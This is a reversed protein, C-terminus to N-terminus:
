SGEQLFRLVLDKVEVSTGQRLPYNVIFDRTRQQRLQKVRKAYESFLERGAPMHSGWADQNVGHQAVFERLRILGQGALWRQNREDDYPEERETVPQRGDYADADAPTDTPIPHFPRDDAPAADTHREEAQTSTNDTSTRPNGPIDGRLARNRQLIRRLLQALRNYQETTPSSVAESGDATGGAVGDNNSQGEGRTHWPALNMFFNGLGRSEADEARNQEVRVQHDESTGLPEEEDDSIADFANLRVHATATTYSLVSDPPPLPDSSSSIMTTFSRPLLNILGPISSVMVHRAEDLTIDADLSTYSPPAVASEAVEVLLSIAEPTNWVDKANHVYMECELKERQTAPQKGWISPPVHELNLEQFLRSFIYPYAEISRRLASRAGQADKVKSKAIGLSIDLNPRTSIWDLVPSEYIKILHDAQGGRIALQDINMCVCYPDGEPDLSLVLKAWEYGTRWTGRQGLNGMYRWAALWFERNEPRRFDLRAKGESLAQVFSTHTARGFSFIARELLDGSVSHDGQQKAIESVQLLTSVHYPNFQLLQIMRQPDMSEVCTEFQRQVDQYLTNHIFRFETTGDSLKEVLEMGLGGTTALPWAAKGPVGFVNRRLATSGLGRGHSAPSNRGALAGGLDLHRPGRGRRTEPGPEDDDGEFAVNGFLKKMENAANLAKPDTALLRCVELVSGNTEQMQTSPSDTKIAASLSKLAVDIEDLESDQEGIAGTKGPGVDSENGVTKKKNKKKKKKNSKPKGKTISATPQDEDLERPHEDGSAQPRDSGEPEKDPDSADNGAQSLMDFANAVKPKTPELDEESEDESENQAKQLKRQQEQERQLRRIARTSM